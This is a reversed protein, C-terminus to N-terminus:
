DSIVGCDPKNKLHPCIQKACNDKFTTNIGAHQIIQADRNSFGVKGMTLSLSILSERGRVEGRLGPAPTTHCKSASQQEKEGKTALRKVLQEAVAAATSLLTLM